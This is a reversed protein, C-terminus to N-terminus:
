EHSRWQDLVGPFSGNSFLVVVRKKSSELPGNLVQILYEQLRQNEEFHKAECICGALTEMVKEICIREGHPINKACRPKGWYCRDCNSFAKCFDGALVNRMSTNTAPEFCAILENKPFRDRFAALVEEIARPHHGFDEFVIVREDEYCRQQRRLVGHFARLDITSPLSFQMATSTALIAMTANLANFRGILSTQMTFFTKEGSVSWTSEGGNSSFDRLQFDNKGGWGVRIVSTWPAPLIAEVNSDDGNILVHGSRPVSRLLHSFSRQVDRLDHFIDAHDFDICNIAVVDPMYHIFKSRKDFFACDYEDGELIFPASADGWDAGSDFDIPVGGILYGCSIQLKRLYFAALASTTTKGHTGAFVVRNRRGIICNNLFEPLSTMPYPRGNLLYEVEENGRTVVNGVVVLHPQFIQLNKGSFGDFFSINNKKLLDDMPAYLKKDSGCVDYGLKSALIAVNGMGVGGIGLFYIRNGFFKQGMNMSLSIVEMGMFFNAEM